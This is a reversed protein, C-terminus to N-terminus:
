TNLLYKCVPYIPPPLLLELAGALLLYPKLRRPVCYTLLAVAAFFGLFIPTNFDM